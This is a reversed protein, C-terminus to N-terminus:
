NKVNIGRTLVFMALLYGITISLNINDTRITGTVFGRGVLIILCMTLLYGLYPTDFSIRNVTKRFNNLMILYILLGLLGYEFLFGVFDSHAIQGIYAGASNYGSGIFIKLVDGDWWYMLLSSWLFSRGSGIHGTREDVINVFRYKLSEIGYDIAFLAIIITILAFILTKSNLAILEALMKINVLSYFLLLGYILLAGRKGTLVTLILTVFFVWIM